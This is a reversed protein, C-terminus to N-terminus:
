AISHLHLFLSYLLDGSKNPTWCSFGDGEPPPAFDTSGKVLPSSVGRAKKLSTLKYFETLIQGTHYCEYWFGTRKTLRHEFQM